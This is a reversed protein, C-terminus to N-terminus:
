RPANRCIIFLRSISFYYLMNLTKLSIPGYPVRKGFALGGEASKRRSDGKSVSKGRSDPVRTGILKTQFIWISVKLQPNIIDSLKNGKEYKFSTMFFDGTVGM